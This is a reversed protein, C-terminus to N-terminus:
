VAILGFDLFIPDPHSKPSTTGLIQSQTGLFGTVSPLLLGITSIHNINKINKNKQKKGPNKPNQTQNKKHPHTLIKWM